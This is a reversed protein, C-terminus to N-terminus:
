PYVARGYRQLRMFRLFSLRFFTLGLTQGTSMPCMLASAPPTKYADPRVDYRAAPVPLARDAVAGLSTRAATDHSAFVPRLRTRILSSLHRVSIRAM